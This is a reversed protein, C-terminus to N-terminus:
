KVPLQPMALAAGQHETVLAAYRNAFRVQEIMPRDPYQSLASVLAGSFADGAGTTDVVKAAEAPIRYFAHLDGRLADEPHSVFCGSAGLTVIVSGIPLLDRCLAHLTHQDIGDVTDPELRAGVVRALLTAFETENPTLLDVQDLLAWDLTGNAPGPNLVTTAANARALTLAQAVAAPPSELQCLAIDDPGIGQSANAVFEASLSANAGAGIAISNRGSADVFIGASGSPLDSMAPRLDIGDAACLRRALEAGADDGLACTFRVDAGTRRAAIAQNFGKGGPGTAYGGSLTAGPLPLAQVRWVHDVNFSGTVFVRAMTM